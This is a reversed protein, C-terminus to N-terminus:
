IIYIYLRVCQLIEFNCKSSSTWSDKIRHFFPKLGYLNKWTKLQRQNLFSYVGHKCLFPYLFGLTLLLMHEMQALSSSRKAAQSDTLGPGSLFDSKVWLLDSVSVFESSGLGTGFDLSLGVLSNGPLWVVDILQQGEFKSNGWTLMRWSVARLQFGSADGSINSICSENSSSSCNSNSINSSRWRRGYKVHGYNCDTTQQVRSTTTKTKCSSVSM